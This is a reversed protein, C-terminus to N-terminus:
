NSIVSKSLTDCGLLGMLLMNPTMKKAVTSARFLMPVLYLDTSPMPRQALLKRLNVNRLCYHSLGECGDVVSGNVRLADELKLRLNNDVRYLNVSLKKLLVASKVVTVLAETEALGLPNLIALSEMQAPWKVALQGLVGCTEGANNLSIALHKFPSFGSCVSVVKNWDAVQHYLPNQHYRPDTLKLTSIVPLGECVSPVLNVLTDVVSNEYFCNHMDLDIVRGRSRLSRLGNLLHEVANGDFKVSCLELCRLPIDSQLLSLWANGPVLALNFYDFILKLKELAANRQLAHLIRISVEVDDRDDDNDEGDDDNDEGLHLTLDTVQANNALAEVVILRSDDSLVNGSVDLELAQLSTTENLFAAMPLPGYGVSHGLNLTRVNTNRGVAGLLLEMFSLEIPDHFDGDLCLTQLALSTEVYRLLPAWDDSLISM